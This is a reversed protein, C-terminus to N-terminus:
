TTGIPGAIMVSEARTSRLVDALGNIDGASDGPEVALAASIGFRGNLVAPHELVRPIDAPPGIVVVPKGKTKNTEVLRLENTRTPSPTRRDALNPVPTMPEPM